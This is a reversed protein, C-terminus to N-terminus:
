MWISRLIILIAIAAAAAIFLPGSMKHAASNHASALWVLGAAALLALLAYSTGSSTLDLMRSGGVSSSESIAGDV